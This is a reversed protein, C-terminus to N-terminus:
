PWFRRRASTVMAPPRVFELLGDGGRSNHFLRLDRALLRSNAAAEVPVDRALDRKIASRADDSKRTATATM